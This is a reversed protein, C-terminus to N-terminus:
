SETMTNSWGTFGKIEFALFEMRFDTNTSREMWDVSTAEGLVKMWIYSRFTVPRVTGIVM